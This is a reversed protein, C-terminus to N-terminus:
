KKKGGTYIELLGDPINVHIEKKRKMIKLLTNDNAPLMIEAKGYDFLILLQGPTEVVDKVPGIAGRKSDVITYGNISKLEDEQTFERPLEDDPLLVKKLVLTAAEEYTNVDEFHIVTGAAEVSFDEIYFPVISGDMNLFLYKSKLFDEADGNHVALIVSGKFGHTKRIFGIETFLQEM